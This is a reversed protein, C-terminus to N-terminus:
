MHLTHAKPYFGMLSSCALVMPTQSLQGGRLSTIFLGQGCGVLSWSAQTPSPSRTVCSVLWSCKALTLPTICPDTDHLIYKGSIGSWSSLDYTLEGIYLENWLCISLKTCCSRRQFASCGDAAKSGYLGVHNVVEGVLWLGALKQFVNKLMLFGGWFHHLRLNFQYQFDM